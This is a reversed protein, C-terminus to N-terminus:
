TYGSKLYPASYSNLGMFIRSPPPFGGDWSILGSNIVKLAISIAANRVFTSAPFFLPFSKEPTPNDKHIFVTMYTVGRWYTGLETEGAEAMFLILGEGFYKLQLCFGFALSFYVSRSVDGFLTNKEEVKSFTM